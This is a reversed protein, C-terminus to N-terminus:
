ANGSNPRCKIEEDIYNQITVMGVYRFKAVNEFSINAVKKIKDQLRTILCSYARLNRQM